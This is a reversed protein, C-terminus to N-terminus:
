ELRSLNPRQLHDAKKPPLADITLASAKVVM